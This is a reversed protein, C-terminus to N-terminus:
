ERQFEEALLDEATSQLERMVWTYKTPRRRRPLQWYTGDEHRCMTRLQLATSPPRGDRSIEVYGLEGLGAEKVYLRSQHPGHWAHVLVGHDHGFGALRDIVREAVELQETSDKM